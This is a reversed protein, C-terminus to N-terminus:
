KETDDSLARAVFKLYTRTIRLCTWLALLSIVLGGAGIIVIYPTQPKLIEVIVIALGSNIMLLYYPISDTRTQARAQQLQKARGGPDAHLDDTKFRKPLKEGASDEDATKSELWAALIFVLLNFAVFVYM